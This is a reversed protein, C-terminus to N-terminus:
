PIEETKPDAFHPEAASSEASGDRSLQYAVITLRANLLRPDTKNAAISFDEATAYPHRARLQREFEILQALPVNKIAVRLTHQLFIDRKVTDPAGLEHKLGGARALADVLAVLGPADLTAKPDLLSLSENLERGFRDADGLWVAQQDLELQAKRLARGTAEWSKLLFSLWILFGVAVLLALMTRERTSIRALLGVLNM